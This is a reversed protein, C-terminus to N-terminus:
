NLPLVPWSFAIRSELQSFQIKLLLLAGNNGEQTAQPQNSLVGCGDGGGGDGGGGSLM